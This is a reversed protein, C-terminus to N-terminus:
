GNIERDMRRFREILAMAEDRPTDFGYAKDYETRLVPVPKHKRSPPIAGTKGGLSHRYSDRVGHVPLGDRSCVLTSNSM